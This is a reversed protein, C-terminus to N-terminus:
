DVGAAAPNNERSAEEQRRAVALAEAGAGNGPEASQQQPTLQLVHSIFFFILCLCNKIGLLSACWGSLGAWGFLVAIVGVKVWKNTLAPAYYNKLFRRLRGEDPSLVQLTSPVPRQENMYVGM